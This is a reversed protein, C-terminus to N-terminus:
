AQVKDLRAAALADTYGTPYRKELKAINASLVEDRTAGILNRLAEMYFELDGLEEVMNERNLQQGYVWVKKVADLVEGGEGAIGVAAHMLGDETEHRKTFRQAVFHAYDYETVHPVIKQESTKPEM